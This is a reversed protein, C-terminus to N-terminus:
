AAIAIGVFVTTKKRTSGGSAIISFSVDSLDVIDTDPSLGSIRFYCVDAVPGTVQWNYALPSYVEQDDVQSHSIPVNAAITEWTSQNDRSLEIKVADVDTITRNITYTQGISLSM